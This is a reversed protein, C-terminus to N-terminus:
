VKGNDNKIHLVYRFHSFRTTKPKSFPITYNKERFNEVNKSFMGLTIWM